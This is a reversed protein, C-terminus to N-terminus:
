SRFSIRPDLWVYSLDTILNVLLIFAGFALVVGQVVPYDRRSIADIMGPACSM